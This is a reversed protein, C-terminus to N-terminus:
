RRPMWGSCAIAQFFTKGAGYEGRVAKFVSGGGAVYAIEEDLAQEFGELGAQPLYGFIGGGGNNLLVIGGHRGRAALLGNMDHYCALDGLLGVVPQDAEAAM